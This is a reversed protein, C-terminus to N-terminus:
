SSLHMKLIRDLISGFSQKLEEYNDADYFNEAGGACDTMLIETDSDVDVGFGITFVEYENTRALDCATKTNDSSIVGAAPDSGNRHVRLHFPGAPFNPATNTAGDTLVVLIKRHSVHSPRSGFPEAETFPEIDSLLRIGWMVGEGIYTARYAVMADIAAKM